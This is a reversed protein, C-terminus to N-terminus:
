MICSQAKDFKIHLCHQTAVIPHSYVHYELRYLLSKTHAIFLYQTRLLGKEPRRALSNTRLFAMRYVLVGQDLRYM